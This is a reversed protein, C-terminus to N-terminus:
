GHRLISDPNNMISKAVDGDLQLTDYLLRDVTGDAILYVFTTSTRSLAIRDCTQSFNVWSPTLSYWIMTAATSLDIGLSAADPQVIMAGAWDHARFETIAEDTVRRHLGGVIRWSPLGITECLRTIRAIDHKFRAAIVVKQDRELIEEVLVDKLATLKETSIPHPVSVMRPRGRVVRPERIGVYGSTIQLLRLTVVLPIKAEAIAGTRLKTVMDAAMEDYHRGTKASLTIPIIRHERPPLDFCQDRLVIIADQHIGRQMDRIGAPRPGTWLPFGNSSIWRGTHHRFDDVTAGWSQFRDPNLWQWQMYIDFARKAKTVPTGTLMFRFRFLDRMSVVMTAAKGSPNKIKHSEDVVGACLDGGIWKRVLSRIKFRGSAVSRRGSPLRKGPRSFADFNCIVIQLDYPGLSTPLPHKRADADWIITQVVLPCHTAIETVWTGLVRNPAIIFVKRLGYMYHLCALTDITTKTKGTRPEYLFACGAYGEKIHRLAFKVGRVQHAYPKTRWTYKLQAAQIVDVRMGLTHQDVPRQNEAM